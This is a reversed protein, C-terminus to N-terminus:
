AQRMELRDYINDWKLLLCDASLKTGSALADAEDNREEPLQLKAKCQTGSLMGTVTRGNRFREDSSYAYTREVKEIELACQFSQEAHDKLIQERESSYKKASVLQGVVALLDAGTAEAATPPQADAAPPQHSGTDEVRSPEEAIPTEAVPEEPVAPTYSDSPLPAAVASDAVIETEMRDAFSPEAFPQSSQGPVLPAVVPQAQIVVADVIDAQMPPRVILTRKTTWDPWLPIDIRIELSWTLKNDSASFTFAGGDPIPVNTELQIPRGATINGKPMLVITSEHLKHTHTTKNTGSGSTCREEGKLKAIIRNLKTTKRPTFEIQLPVGGGPPVQLAGFDVKVSGMRKEAISKRLSLFLVILGAPVLVIGFPCFLFLGLVLLGVGIPVGAKALLGMAEEKGLVIKPLNEWPDSGPLLIYEEKRKPDIAWPIDVRANLYHDVNLYHGRYTPPGNPAMFSFPFSLSEGAQLAGRYLVSTEKRGSAKNGRGHTQWFHELLIGDCKVYHNVQVRVTGAVEEGPRFTRDSRDLIIDVDCKSM